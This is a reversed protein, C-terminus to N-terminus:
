FNDSIVYLNSITSGSTTPTIYAYVRLSAASSTLSTAQLQKATAASLLFWRKTFTATATNDTLMIMANAGSTGTAIVNCVYWNSTVPVAFCNGALVGAMILALVVIALKKKM